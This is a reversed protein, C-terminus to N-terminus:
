TSLPRLLLPSQAADPQAAARRLVGELDDVVRQWDLALATERARAGMARLASRNSAAHAALDVLQV